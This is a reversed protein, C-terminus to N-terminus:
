IYRNKNRRNEIYPSPVSSEDDPTASNQGRITKVREISNMYTPCVDKSCSWHALMLILFSFMFLFKTSKKM